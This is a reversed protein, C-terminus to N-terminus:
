TKRCVFNQRVNYAHVFGVQPRLLLQKQLPVPCRAYQDIVDEVSIDQLADKDSAQFLPSSFWDYFM